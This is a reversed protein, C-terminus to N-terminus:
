AANKEPAVSKDGRYDYEEAFQKIAAGSVKECLQTRAWATVGVNANGEFKGRTWPAVIFKRHKDSISAAISQLEDVETQPLDDDYWVVVYGHELNHVLNEPAKANDRAYFRINAPATQGNHDGASPPNPYAVQGNVHQASVKKEDVSAVEGCGALEASVGITSVDDVTQTGKDSKKTLVAGAILGGGLLVALLIAIVTGRKESSRQKKKLEDLKRRRDDVPKKPM